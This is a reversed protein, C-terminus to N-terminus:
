TAKEKYEHGNITLIKASKFLSRIADVADHETSNNTMDLIATKVHPKTRDAVDFKIRFSKMKGGVNKGGPM